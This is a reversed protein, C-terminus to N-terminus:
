KYVGADILAQGCSLIAEENSRPNWGLARAKENSQHKRKGLEHIITKLQPMVYSVLKVLFNPMTGTPAKSAKAGLGAKLIAGTEALTVPPGTEACCQYRQGAAEPKVAALLHLSAVDRVDIVAFSVDPVAPLKGNLMQSIIGVSTSECPLLLPPGFIGVPNVVTLEMDGGEREIYDWAAKEALTKSKMYPTIYKSNPDSWDAETFVKGKEFEVGYSIAAQSSTVVVRKVTGSAKAAKLIRLTGDVAPRILENEDKPQVGPFPSAVHLVLSVNKVADAWGDDKLLDAIVFEVKSADVPPDANGLGKIVDQKRSDRRITTRVKYGATLAQAICHLSVFGSGGTILITTNSNAAMNLEM